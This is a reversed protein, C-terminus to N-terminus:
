LYRLLLPLMLVGMAHTKHVGSLPAILGVVTSLFFLFGGFPGTFVLSMTTLGVLVAICLAQYNIRSIVKAARRGIELTAVYSLAAVALLIVIMLTMLGKDLSVLEKIAAAAGSRPQGMVYLAVLSFVANASNVGAISVLFEKPTTPAGLRTVMTAVAPSVGPFWAILSGAIGGMLISRALSKLDMQIPADEQPPIEAESSLSIVLFSAGFLGSLLPLLVQPEFGFPSWALDQHQFAFSGLIGSTLFLALGLAKYKWHVLSGQGEIMPGKERFFMLIVIGVLVLGFSRKLDDYYLNFLTSLPLILLMAVLISGASGLASLRIAEMGRGELVLTHGPLVALVTDADPAGIFVAPIVDLFTQSISASLVLGALQYPQLGWDLLGPTLALLLAAFTNVHLGPVLGSCIGAFFGVLACLILAWDVL